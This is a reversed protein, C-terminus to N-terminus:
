TTLARKSRDVGKQFQENILNIVFNVIDLAAHTVTSVADVVTQVITIALGVIANRLAKILETGKALWDSLKGFRWKGLAWGPLWSYLMSLLAGVISGVYDGLTPSTKVTNLNVDGAAGITGLDTCDLNIGACSVMATLLSTGEASVSSVAFVPTSSSAAIILAVMAGEAAPHLPAALPVHPVLLMCWGSQLVAWDDTTVSHAIHWRKSPGMHASAVVHSTGPKPIPVPGGALFCIHVDRGVFTGSKDLFNASM